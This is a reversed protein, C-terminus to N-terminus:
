RNVSFGLAGERVSQGALAAIQEIEEPTAQEEIAREGMVYFRTASHGVLGCVNIMPGLREISDLYGGYSEWDWPLGTLIAHKPIDEVTEMMGALFERDEKRCPAFTVGCNGLLATTVGHWTVSTMQPDWGIQADLHTHLDIFGPTVVHGKADIEEAGRESVQGVAAITDGDIAIDGEIPENGAGDVVTGNRIVLDHAM